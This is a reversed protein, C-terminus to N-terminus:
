ERSAFRVLPISLVLYLVVILEAMDVLRIDCYYMDWCDRVELLYGSAGVTNALYLGIWLASILGVMAKSILHFYVLIPPLVFLILLAVLFYIGLGLLVKEKDLEWFRKKREEYTSTPQTHPHEEEKYEEHLCFEYYSKPGAILAERGYIDRCIQYAYAGSYGLPGSCWVCYNVRGGGRTSTGSHTSQEGFIERAITKEDVIKKGDERNM